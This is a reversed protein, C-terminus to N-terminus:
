DRYTLGKVLLGKAICLLFDSYHAALKGVYHRCSDTAAPGVNQVLRASRIHQGTQGAGHNKMNGAM